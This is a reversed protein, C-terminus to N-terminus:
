HFESIFPVPVICVEIVLGNNLQGPSEVMPDRWNFDSAICGAGTLQLSLGAQINSSEFVGVDTSMMGMAPGDAATFDGEYSLFEIVTGNDDVLAFGDPAGNQIGNSPFNVAIAGFGTGEDDIIEGTLDVTNYSLQNAGNYLVLSYGDLNFGATGSLEIFEGTDTGDNDYHFESVFVIQDDISASSETFAAVDVLAPVADCGVITDNPIGAFTVACEDNTAQALLFDSLFISCFFLLVFATYQKIKM